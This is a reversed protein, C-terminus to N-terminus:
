MECAVATGNILLTILTKIVTPLIPCFTKQGLVICAVPHFEDFSDM